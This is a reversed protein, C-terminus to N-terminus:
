PYERNIIPMTIQWAGGYPATGLGATSSQLLAGGVGSLYIMSPTLLAGDPGILAYYLYKKWDSDMWTIVGRGSLDLTLSVYDPKRTGIGSLDQVSGVLDYTEADLLAYHMGIVFYDPDGWALLVQGGGLQRAAPRWGPGPLATSGKVVSGASNLVVYRLSTSDASRDHIAYALLARNQALGALAADLFQTGSTDGGATSELLVDVPRTQGGTVAYMTYSLASQKQGAQRHEDIWALLYRSEGPPSGPTVALAPYQFYHTNPDNVLDYWTNDNTVNVPGLLLAGEADLIAFYVNSRSKATDLDLQYEIWAIGTSGDPAVSAVPTRTDVWLRATASSESDTLATVPQLTGGLENLVVYEIDSFRAGSSNSNNREWVYAYRNEPLGVLAMTNGTFFREVRSNINSFRWVRNLLMGSKGDTYAQAFAAPIASQLTVTANKAADLKSTAKLTLNISSGIEVNVAAKLKVAVVFDDGQQVPGTDLDGNSDTDLLPTVGSKDFLSYQWQANDSQVEINYTDAGSEGTNRVTFAFSAQRLIAFSSQYLPLAKARPTAPPRTFRLARNDTLGPANYLYRLGSVGDGDEIGVSLEPPLADLQQYQFVIDGNQYLVVEFTLPGANDDLVMNQWEVVFYGQEPFNRVYIGGATSDLEYAWLPAVFADPPTDSPIDQSTVVQNPKKFLVQGDVSVYVQTYTEEYFKFPFALDIETSYGFRPDSFDVLTGGTADIWSFVAPDEVTYGFHDVLPAAPQRAPQGMGRSPAPRQWEDCLALGKELAFQQCPSLNNQGALAQASNASPLSASALLLISLLLTFSKRM